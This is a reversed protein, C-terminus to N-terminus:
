RFVWGHSKVNFDITYKKCKYTKSIDSLLTNNYKILNNLEKQVNRCINHAIKERSQLPKLRMKGALDDIHRLIIDNTAQYQLELVNYIEQKKQFAKDSKKIESSFKDETFQNQLYKIRLELNNDRHTTEFRPQEVRRLHIAYQIKNTLFRGFKRLNEMAIYDPTEPELTKTWRPPLEQNVDHAVSWHTIQRNEGCPIDGPNRPINGNNNERLWQYYHPNHIAREIAGTKWSFATHCQTCWMQDCGDIKHINTACKPCPHTDKKIFKATAVDDPNCEHPSSSENDIILHCKSCTTKECIGCNWEENVFGRCDEGPCKIGRFPTNVDTSKTVSGGNSIMIHINRRRTNLLNITEEIDKLETKYKEIEKRNQVIPITAPLLAKEREVAKKTIMSSWKGNVWSQTFHDTIFKRTWEKQCIFEGNKKEPNMCTTQEKDLIYTECCVRCATFECYPCSVKSHKKENYANCCIYCEMILNTYTNISTYKTNIHSM